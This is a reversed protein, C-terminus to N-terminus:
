DTQTRRLAQFEKFQPLTCVSHRILISIFKHPTVTKFLSEDIFFVRRSSDISVFIDSFIIFVLCDCLIKGQYTATNPSFFSSFKEGSNRSKLFVIMMLVFIIHLKIMELNLLCSQIVVISVEFTGLWIQNPPKLQKANNDTVILFDDRWKRRMPQNHERLAYDFYYLWSFNDYIKNKNRRKRDIAWNGRSSYTETELKWIGSILSLWLIENLCKRMVAVDNVALAMWIFQAFHHMQCPCAIRDKSVSVYFNLSLFAVIRGGKSGFLLGTPFTWVSFSPMRNNRHVRGVILHHSITPWKFSPTIHVFKQASQPQSHSNRTCARRWSAFRSFIVARM